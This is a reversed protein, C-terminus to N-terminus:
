SDIKDDSFASFENEKDESLFGDLYNENPLFIFIMAQSPLPAEM